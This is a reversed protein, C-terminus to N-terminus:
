RRSAASQLAPASNTASLTVPSELRFTLYRGKQVGIGQSPHFTGRAYLSSTQLALQRGGISISSLTLRIYGAGAARGSDDELSRASEVRGTVSTDRPVLIDGEITVPGTVTAAFTDGPRVKAASFSEDLRVTFLTGAPLVRDQSDPHFPLSSARKADTVAPPSTGGGEQGAVSDSHFPLIQPSSSPATAQVPGSRVCGLSISLCISISISLVIALFFAAPAFRPGSNRRFESMGLM